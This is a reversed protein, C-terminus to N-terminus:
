KKGLGISVVKVKTLQPRFGRVRRYRSKAKYIASRIKEGKLQDVIELDVRANNILPQGIKVGDDVLLLIEKLSVKEGKKGALRDVMLIDGESVRYQSGNIRVVAYKM